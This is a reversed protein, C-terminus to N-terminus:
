PLLVSKLVCKRTYEKTKIKRNNIEMMEGSEVRVIGDGVDM